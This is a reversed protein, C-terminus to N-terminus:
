CLPDWLTQKLLFYRFAVVSDYSVEEGRDNKVM